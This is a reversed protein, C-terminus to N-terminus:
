IELYFYYSQTTANVPVMLQFQATNGNYTDAGASIVDTGFVAGTVGGTSDEGICTTWQGATGTSNFPTVGAASAIATGANCATGSFTNNISDADSSTFGYDTDLTALNPTSASTVATIGNGWNVNSDPSAFVGQFTVGTWDYFTSSGDGLKLSGSVNGYFGQWKQTGQNSSVNVETVNGGGATVSNAAPASYQGTAGITSQGAQPAALAFGIGLTFVMAYAMLTILRKM